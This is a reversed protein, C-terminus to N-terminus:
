LDGIMMEPPVDPEPKMVKISEVITSDSTKSKETYPNAFKLTLNFEQVGQFKLHQILDDLM